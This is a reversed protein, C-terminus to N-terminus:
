IHHTHTSVPYAHIKKRIVKSPRHSRRAQRYGAQLAAIDTQTLPRKYYSRGVALGLFLALAIALIALAPGAM